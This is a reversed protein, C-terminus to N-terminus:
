FLNGGQPGEELVVVRFGEGVTSASAGQVRDGAGTRDLVRVLDEDSIVLRKDKFVVKEADESRLLEHLEKPSLSSASEKGKGKFKGKHMVMKELRRKGEARVVNTNTKRTKDVEWKGGRM